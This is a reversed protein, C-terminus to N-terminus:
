RGMGAPTGFRNRLLLFWGVAVVVGIGVYIVGLTSTAGLGAVLLVAAVLVFVLNDRRVQGRYGHLGARNRLATPIAAAVGVLIVALVLLGARGWGDAPQGLLAVGVGAALAAGAAPALPVTPRSSSQFAALAADAQQAAEHPPKMDNM